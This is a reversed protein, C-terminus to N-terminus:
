VVSTNRLFQGFLKPVSIRNLQNSLLETAKAVRLTLQARAPQLIWMEVSCAFPTKKGCELQINIGGWWSNYVLNTFFYSYWNSIRLGFVDSVNNCLKFEM